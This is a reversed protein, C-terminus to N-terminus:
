PRASPGSVAPACRGACLSTTLRLTPGCWPDEHTLIGSKHTRTLDGGLCCPALPPDFSLRRLWDRGGPRKGLERKEAIRGRPPGSGAIRAAADEWPLEPMPPWSHAMPSGNAREGQEHDNDDGVRRGRRSLLSLRRLRTLAGISFPPPLAGSRVRGRGRAFFAGRACHPLVQLRVASVTVGSVTVGSVTVGSVLNGTSRRLSWPCDRYPRPASRGRRPRAL